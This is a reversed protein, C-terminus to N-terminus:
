EPVFTVIETPSDEFDVLTINLTIVGTLPNVSGTGTITALSEPLTEEEQEPITLTNDGNDIFTLNRKSPFSFIHVDWNSVLYENCDTSTMRIGAMSPFDRGRTGVYSGSLICDDFITFTTTKGIIGDKSRGININEPSVGTITFIIDQQYLINNANNILRIDIYGFSQNAPITVSGRNGLIEYDVGERADGGVSYHVTIPEDRQPGVFHVSIKIPKNFSERASGEVETFRVHYPGEFITEEKECSSFFIISMGAILSISLFKLYKIILNKM